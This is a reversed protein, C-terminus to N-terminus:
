GKLDCILDPEYLAQRLVAKLILRIAMTATNLNILADLSSGSSPWPINGHAIRSRLAYLKKIITKLPADIGLEKIIDLENSRRLILPISILLQRSISDNPDGPSPAHTLLAELSVFHSLLWMPTDHKLDDSQELIELSRVISDHKPQLATRKSFLEALSLLADENVEPIEWPLALGSPETYLRRSLEMTCPTQTGESNKRRAGFSVEFAPVLEVDLLKTAQQMAKRLRRPEDSSTYRIVYYRWQDRSLRVTTKGSHTASDVWLGEYRYLSANSQSLHEFRALAAKTLPRIWSEIETETAKELSFGHGLKYPLCGLPIQVVDAIFLFGDVRMEPETTASRNEHEINKLM